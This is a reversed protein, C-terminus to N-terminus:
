RKQTFHTAHHWWRGHNQVSGSHPTDSYSVHHQDIQIQLYHFRKLMTVTAPSIAHQFNTNNGLHDLFIKMICVQFKLIVNQTCYLTHPSCTSSNNADVLVIINNDTVRTTIPIYKAADKWALALEVRIHNLAAPVINFYNRRM